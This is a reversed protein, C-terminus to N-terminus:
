NDYKIQKARNGLIKLISIECYACWFVSSYRLQFAQYQAKMKIQRDGVAARRM